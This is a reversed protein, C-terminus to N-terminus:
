YSAVWYMVRGPRERLQRDPPSLNTTYSRPLKFSADEREEQKQLERSRKNVNSSGRGQLIPSSPVPKVKNELEAINTQLHQIQASQSKIIQEMRRITEEAAMLKPRLDDNIEKERILDQRLQSSARMERHLTKRKSEVDNRLSSTQLTLESCKQELESIENDVPAQALYELGEQYFNTVPLVRFDRVSRDLADAGSRIIANYSYMM